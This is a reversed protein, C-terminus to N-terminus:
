EIGFHKKILDMAEYVEHPDSWYTKEEVLSVCEKIVLEILKDHDINMIEGPGSYTIYSAEDILRKNLENM